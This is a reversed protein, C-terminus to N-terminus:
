FLKGAPKCFGDYIAGGSEDLVSIFLHGNSRNLAIKIMLKSIPDYDDVTIQDPSTAKIHYTEGQITISNGPLDVMVSYSFDIPLENPITPSPLYTGSCSLHVLTEPAPLPNGCRSHADCELLEIIRDDPAPKIRDCFQRAATDEGSYRACEILEAFFALTAARVLNRQRTTFEEGNATSSLLLTAGIAFWLGFKMPLGWIGLM